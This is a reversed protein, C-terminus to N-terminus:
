DAQITYLRNINWYKISYWFFFVNIAYIFSRFIWPFSFPICSNWFANDPSFCFTEALGFPLIPNKAHGAVPGISTKRGSLYIGSFLISRRETLSLIELRQVVRVVFTTPSGEFRLFSLLCICHRCFLGHM